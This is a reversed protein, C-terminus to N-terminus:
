AKRLRPYIRGLFDFGAVLMKPPIPLFAAKGALIVAKALLPQNKRRLNGAEMFSRFPRVWKMVLDYDIGRIIGKGTVHTKVVDFDEYDQVDILGKPALEEYFQSGPYPSLINYRVNKPEIKELFKYSLVYDKETEGPIGVLMNANVHFGAKRCIQAARLNQELTCGKNLIKLIDPSGSEFGFWVGMCGVEKLIEAVEEDFTNARANISIPPLDNGQRRAELVEDRFTRLWKKNWSFTDDYFTILKIPFNRKLYLMEEIVNSPTRLRITKTGYMVFQNPWCYKCRGPCGRSATIGALGDNADFADKYTPLYATAPFPLEDLNTVHNVTRYIAPLKDGREIMELIEFITKEGEGVVVCDFHGSDAFDNPLASAHVGGALTIMGLEKAIKGATIGYGASPTLCSVGVIDYQGDRLIGRYQDIDSLMRFDIIDTQHSGDRDLLAKLYTIGPPIAYYDDAGRGAKNYSDWGITAIGTYVFAIRM